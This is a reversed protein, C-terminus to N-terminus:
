DNIAMIKHNVNKQNNQMQLCNKKVGTDFYFMKERLTNIPLWIFVFIFKRKLFFVVFFCEM